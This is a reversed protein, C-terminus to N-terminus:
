KMWDRKTKNYYVPISVRGNSAKKEATLHVKNEKGAVTVTIHADVVQNTDGILGVLQAEGITMISGAEVSGLLASEISGETGDAMSYLMDVTVEADTAGENIVKLWSVFGTVNLSMHSVKAQLGNIDWEGANTSEAILDSNTTEDDLNLNAKVAFNRTAIAGSGWVNATLITSGAAFVDSAESEFMAVDNDVDIEFDGREITGGATSLGISEIGSMDGSLTITVKDDTGLTVGNTIAAENFELALQDSTADGTFLKREADVDVTANFVTDVNASFENAYRFLELASITEFVGFSDQTEATMKIETGAPNVPLQMDVSQGAISSGSLIFDAPATIASVNRFELETAGDTDQTVLSFATLNGTGAGGASVELSYGSNSFAAGDSLRIYLRNDQSVSATLQLVISDGAINATFDAATSAETGVSESVITQFSGAFVQPASLALAIGAAIMSIKSM